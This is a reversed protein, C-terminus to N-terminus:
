CRLNVPPWVSPKLVFPRERMERFTYAFDEGGVNVILAKSARPLSCQTWSDPDKEDYEVDPMLSAIFHRMLLNTHGCCSDPQQVSPCDARDRSIGVFVLLQCRAQHHLRLTAM